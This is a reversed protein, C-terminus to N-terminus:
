LANRKMANSTGSSLSRESIVEGYANKRGKRPSPPPPSYSKSPRSPNLNESNEEHIQTYMKVM